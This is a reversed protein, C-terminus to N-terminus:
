SNHMTEFAARVEERDDFHHKETGVIQYTEHGKGAVLVIDGAQALMSATRIAERRDVIRLYRVGTEVGAAMEDLIAEPQERRPNDSTFIATDAYKVAIQAMEPRKTRDRDGGCGCVVILRQQPTRIEDITRLVNELADPTHAYDVVATTGDAARVLEFRGSVPKLVSLVQLVEERSFGLEVAVAYVALLNYANFRGLLGVWVDRGDIRLQMGDLHMEVIKCRYDAVTRLSYRKVTAATNQVMVEGNRDDANVLAFAGAPLADFFGKKAKIYEAFTKHYDLHDHTINSFLGGAFHLGRTRQQVIAHSSCEMFCYECGADVMERMMANLRVPDPTTHTSEVTRDDIRYVVTSILGAKYGLARVLDYLLTATTTKGNTGTVGVLRLERSPHGYFAAAMDALAAQADDVVVYAVHEAQEAPLEECVVAAAGAGVAAGIFAHGDCQTGRVAFFCDGARVSRSDYTLGAIDVSASGVVERVAINNLLTALKM